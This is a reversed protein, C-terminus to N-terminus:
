FSGLLIQVKQSHSNLPTIVLSRCSQLKLLNAGERCPDSDYLAHLATEPPPSSHDLHPKASSKTTSLLDHSTICPPHESLQENSPERPSTKKEM